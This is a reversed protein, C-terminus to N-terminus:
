RSSGHHTAPPPTQEHLPGVARGVLLSSVFAVLLVAAFGALKLLPAM